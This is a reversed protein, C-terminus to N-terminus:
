IALHFGLILLLIGLLVPLIIQHLIYVALSNRGVFTVVNNKYRSNKFVSKRESYFQRGVFVGIFAQGGFLLFPFCDGGCIATGVIQRGLLEFFPAESYSVFEAKRFLVVGAVTMVLGLALYIWKSTGLKDMLGILILALAICHLVGFTITIDMDGTVLGVVYTGATVLLAVGMLKVGRKINSRSLSCCLGTLVLFVALVVYRIDVRLDMKWYAYAANAVKASTGGATPYDSFLMPLLGWLNYMLHDFIMLLVAVGRFVDLEIIRNELSKKM